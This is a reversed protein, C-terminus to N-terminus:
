AWSLHVKQTISFFRRWFHGTRKTLLFFFEGLVFVGDFYEFLEIIETPLLLVLIKIKESFPKLINFNVTWTISIQWFINWPMLSYLRKIPFLFSHSWHFTQCNQWNKGVFKPLNGWNKRNKSGSTIFIQLRVSCQFNHRNSSVTKTCDQFNRWVFTKSKKKQLIELDKLLCFIVLGVDQNFVFTKITAQKLGCVM